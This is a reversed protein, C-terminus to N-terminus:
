KRMKISHSIVESEKWNMYTAIRIILDNYGKIAKYEISSLDEISMNALCYTSMLKYAKDIMLYCTRCDPCTCDMTYFYGNSNSLTSMCPKCLDLLYKYYKEMNHVGISKNISDIDKYLDYPLILRDKVFAKLM